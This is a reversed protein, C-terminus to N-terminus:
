FAEGLIPMYKAPFPIFFNKWFAAFPLSLIEGWFFWAHLALWKWFNLNTRKGANPVMEPFWKSHTWRKRKRSNWEFKRTWDSELLMNQSLSDSKPRSLHHWAQKQLFNGGFGSDLMWSLLKMKLRNKLPIRCLFPQGAFGSAFDIQFKESKFTRKPFNTSIPSGEFM